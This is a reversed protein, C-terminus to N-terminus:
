QVNVKILSDLYAAMRSYSGDPDPDIVAEDPKRVHENWYAITNLEVDIDHRMKVAREIRRTRYEAEADSRPQRLKAAEPPLPELDFTPTGVSMTTKKRTM